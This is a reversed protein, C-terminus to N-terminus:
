DLLIFMRFVTVDPFYVIWLHPAKTPSFPHNLNSRRGPARALKISTRNQWCWLEREGCIGLSRYAQATWFSNDASRSKFLTLRAEFVELKMSAGTSIHDTRHFWAQNTVVHISHVPSVWVACKTLRMRWHHVVASQLNCVSFGQPPHKSGSVLLM